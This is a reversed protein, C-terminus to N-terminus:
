RIRHAASAIRAVRALRGSRHPSAKLGQTLRDNIWLEEVDPDDFYQQLPGFGAVASFAHQTLDRMSAPQGDTDASWEALVGAVTADVLDRVQDPEVMPDIGRARVGARFRDEVEALVDM